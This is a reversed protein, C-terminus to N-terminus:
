ENEQKQYGDTASSKRCGVAVDDGHLIPKLTVAEIRAIRGANEISFSGRRQGAELYAM